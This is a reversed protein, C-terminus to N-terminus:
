VYLPPMIIVKVSLGNDDRTLDLELGESNSLFSDPDYVFCVLRRCDPHLRYRDIDIILQDGVERDRLSARTKKVEVVIKEAKLLFDM